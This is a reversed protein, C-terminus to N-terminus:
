CSGAAPEPWGGLQQRDPLELPVAHRREHLHRWGIWRVRQQQRPDLQRGDARRRERPHGRRRLAVHLLGRGRQRRFREPRGHHDHGGGTRCRRGGLRRQRGGDRPRPGPEPLRWGRSLRRRWRRPRRRRAQRGQPGVPVPGSSRGVPPRPVSSRLPEPGLRRHCHERDRRRLHQRVGPRRPGRGPRDRRARLREPRVRGASSPDRRHRVLGRPLRGLVRQPERRPRGRAALLQREHRRRRQDYRRLDHRRSRGGGNRGRLRLRSGGIQLALNFVARPLTAPSPDGTAFPPVPRITTSHPRHPFARAAPVEAQRWPFRLRQPPERRGPAQLPEQVVQVVVHGAGAATGRPADQALALDLAHVAGQEGRRGQAELAM